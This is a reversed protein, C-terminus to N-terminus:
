RVSHTVRSAHAYRSMPFPAPVRRTSDTRRYEDDSDSVVLVSSRGRRRIKPSFFRQAECMSCSFSQSVRQLFGLQPFALPHPASPHADDLATLLRRPAVAVLRHVLVALIGALLLLRTVVAPGLLPHLGATVRRLLRFLPLGPAPSTLLRLLMRVVGALWLLLVAVIGGLLPALVLALETLLCPLVLPALSTLRRVGMAILHALKSPGPFVRSYLVNTDVLAGRVRVLKSPRASFPFPARERGASSM